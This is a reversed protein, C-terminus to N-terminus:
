KLLDNKIENKLAILESTNLNSLKIAIVEFKFICDPFLDVLKIKAEEIIEDIISKTDKPIEPLLAEELSSADAPLNFLDTLEELIIAKYDGDIEIRRMLRGLNTNEFANMLRRNPSVTFKGRQSARRREGVQMSWDEMMYSNHLLTIKEPSFPNITKMLEKDENGANLHVYLDNLLAAFQIDGGVINNFDRISPYIWVHGDKGHNKPDNVAFYLAILPDFTWDILRSPLELHREQFLLYWDYLYNSVDAPVHLIVSGIKGNEIKEKFTEHILKEFALIEDISLGYRSITPLISYNNLAHGRYLFHLNAPSIPDIIEQIRVRFESLSKIKSNNEPM